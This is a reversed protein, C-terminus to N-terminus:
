ADRWALPAATDRHLPRGYAAGLITGYMIHAVILVVAAWAGRFLMFGGPVSVGGVPARYVFLFAVGIGAVCAHGMGMLMGLWWTARQTVYEFVVAYAIGAVAGLIIQLVCGALAAWADFGLAAGIAVCLDADVGLLPALVSMVAVVAIGALAGVLLARTWKIEFRLRSLLM